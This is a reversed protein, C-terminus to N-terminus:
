SGTDRWVTAMFLALTCVHVATCWLCIADVEFLEVYVLYLASLIGAAAAVVRAARLRRDHLPLAVAVTMVVFYALGLVAVPIGAITSWKSTTVKLCNITASEPCAFSAGHTYHEVTLYISAGLGLVAALVAVIQAGRHDGASTTAGSRRPRTM